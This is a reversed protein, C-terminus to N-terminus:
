VRPMADSAATEVAPLRLTFCSGEGFTSVVELRGSHARAIAQAIALGLGTRGESTGRSVDARYFRDFVRPLAEPAIGIGTDRVSLWAEGGAVGTKLALSGGERNYHIANTLLNLVVQSLRAPDGCVVAPKLESSVSLGRKEALPQVMHLLGDALEELRVPEKEMTEQGGDLRTLDLLSDALRRMQQAADLCVGLSEKYEGAERDRALTAQAESVIVALPTRLEHSADATFQRQRAFAAELRAFATNLVDALQSLERGAGASDIRESLTGASIRSAAESMEDLPRLARGALWWGGGLGLALVSGGAMALWWALHRLARNEEAMSRGVLLAEGFEMYQFAERSGGRTRFYLTADAASRQPRGAEGPFAGSKYALTGDGNWVAAYPAPGAEAAFLAKTAATLTIKRRMMGGPGGPGEPGGFGGRGPFRRPGRPWRDEDEWAGPGPPPELEAAANPAAEENTEHTLAPLAAAPETAPKEDSAAPNESPTAPPVIRRSRAAAGQPFEAGRPGGPERWERGHPGGGGKPMRIDAAVKAALQQLEDDVRGIQQLQSLRWATVGFGALLLALLLALWWLFRWRISPAFIM